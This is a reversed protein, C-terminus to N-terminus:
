RGKRPQRAVGLLQNPSIRLADCLRLLTSIQPDLKGSEMKVISVYHVGSLEGLGRVTLGRKERWEKLRTQM